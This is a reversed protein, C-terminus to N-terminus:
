IDLIAPRSSSLPNSKSAGFELSTALDAHEITTPFVTTAYDLNSWTSVGNGYKVKRTDTELGPEGIELVPNNIDWNAATDRRIKIITSM